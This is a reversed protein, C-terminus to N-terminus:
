AQLGTPSSVPLLLSSVVHDMFENVCSPGFLRTPYGCSVTIQRRENDRSVNISMYPLHNFTGPAVPWIIESNVEPLRPAAPVSDVNLYVHPDAPQYNVYDPALQELLYEFPIVDHDMSELLAERARSQIEYSSTAGVVRVRLLNRNNLFGIMEDAADLHRRSTTYLLGPDAGGTLNSLASLVSGAALAFLSMHGQGFAARRRDIDVSSLTRSWLGGSEDASQRSDEPLSFTPFPGTGSWVKAWYQVSQRAESSQLWRREWSAFRAFDSQIPTLEAIDHGSHLHQYVYEFDRLFVAVSEGDFVIHSIAIGLAWHDDYRLLHARFLPYQEPPLPQQLRMNIALDTPSRDGHRTRLDYCDLHWTVESPRLYLGRNPSMTAPFFTRLATHRRALCTLSTELLPLDVEGAIRLGFVCPPKLQRSAGHHLRLKAAQRFSTPVSCVDSIEIPSDTSTM